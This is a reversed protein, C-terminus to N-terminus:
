ESSFTFHKAKLRDMPNEAQMIMSDSCLLLSKKRFVEMDGVKVSQNDFNQYRELEQLDDGSASVAKISDENFSFNVCNLEYASDPLTNIRIQRGLHDLRPNGQSDLSPFLSQENFPDNSIRRLSNSDSGASESANILTVLANRAQRSSDESPVVPDDRHQRCHKLCKYICVGIGVLTFVALGGAGGIGWWFKEDRPDPRDSKEPTYKGEFNNLEPEKGPGGNWVKGRLQRQFDHNNVRTPESDSLLRTCIMAFSIVGCSLSDKELEKIDNWRVTQQRYNKQTAVTVYGNKSNSFIAVESITQGTDKENDRTIVQLPQSDMKVKQEGSQIMLGTKYTGAWISLEEYREIGSVNDKDPKSEGKVWIKGEVRTVSQADGLIIRIDGSDVESSWTISLTIEGDESQLTQATFLKSENKYFLMSGHEIASGQIILSAEEPEKEKNVPTRTMKYISSWPILSCCYFAEMNNLIEDYGFTYGKEKLWVQMARSVEKYDDTVNLVSALKNAFDARLDTQYYLKALFSLVKKNGGAQNCIKQQHLPQLSM